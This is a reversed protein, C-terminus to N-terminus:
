GHRKEALLEDITTKAAEVHAPGFQGRPTFIQWDSIVNRDIWTEDGRRLRVHMPDNLLMGRVRDGKLEITEFWLHEREDEHQALNRPVAFGAKVIFAAVRDASDRRRAAPVVQFLAAFRGLTARALLAARHTAATSKFLAAEGQQVRAAAAAPWDYSDLACVAIRAGDRRHGDHDERRKMGGLADDPMAQAAQEWPVLRVFVDNGVEFPEGPEPLGLDVVLEAISHLMSTAFRGHEAPVGHMEFEHRGGTRLGDTYAWLRPPHAPDKAEDGIAHVMFLLAPGAPMNEPILVTNLEERTHWGGTNVNLIAPADAFARGLLRLISQLHTQPDNPDLATEVGIAWRCDGAKLFAITEDSLPRMPEVWIVLPAPLAPGAILANWLAPPQVVPQDVVTFPEDDGDHQSLARVIRELTPADDNGPVIAILNVPEIAPQPWASIHAHASDPSLPLPFDSRDPM